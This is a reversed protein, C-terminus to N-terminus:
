LCWFRSPAQPFPFGGLSVDPMYIALFTVPVVAGPSRLIKLFCVGHSEPFSDKSTYGLFVLQFVVPLGVNGAAHNIAALMCFCGDHGDMASDM